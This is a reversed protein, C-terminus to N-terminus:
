SETRHLNFPNTELSVFASCKPQMFHKRYSFEMVLSRPSLLTTLYSRRRRLREGFGDPNTNEQAQMLFHDLPLVIIGADCFEDAQKLLM